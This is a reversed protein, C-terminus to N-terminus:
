ISQGRSKKVISHDIKCGLNSEIYEEIKFKSWTNWNHKYGYLKPTSNNIVYQNIIFKCGYKNKQNELFLKIANHEALKSKSNEKFSEDERQDNKETFIDSNQVNKQSKNQRNDNKRIEEFPDRKKSVKDKIASPKQTSKQTEDQKDIRNKDNPNIHKKNNKISSKKHKEKKPLNIIKKSSNNCLVQVTFQKGENIMSESLIPQTNTSYQIIIGLDNLFQQAVTGKISFNINDIKDGTLKATNIGVINASMSLLPGGSSGPQIPATHSLFKTNGKYGSLSSINGKTAKIEDGLQNLLPFGLAVVEELTKIPNSNFKAPNKVFYDTRLIALDVSKGIKLVEAKIDKELNRVWVSSCNNVVHGNTLVDGNTNIFFGTGSGNSIPPQEQNHKIPEGRNIKQIPKEVYRNIYVPKEIIREIEIPIEVKQIKIRDITIPKKVIFHYVIAIIILLLGIACLILLINKYMPYRAERIAKSTNADLVKNTKYIYTNEISSM